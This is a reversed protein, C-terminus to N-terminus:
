KVEESLPKPSAKLIPEFVREYRSLKKAMEPNNGPQSSVIIKQINNGRDSQLQILEKRLREIEALTNKKNAGFPEMKGERILPVNWAGFSITTNGAFMSQHTNYHKDKRSRNYEAVVDKFHSRKFYYPVYSGALSDGNKELYANMARITERYETVKEKKIPDITGIAHPDFMTRIIEGFKQEYGITMLETPLMWADVNQKRQFAQEKPALDVINMCQGMLTRMANACTVQSERSRDVVRPLSPDYSMKQSEIFGSLCNPLGISRVSSAFIPEIDIEDIKGALVKQNLKGVRAYEAIRDIHKRFLDKDDPIFLVQGPKILINTGHKGKRVLSKDLFANLDLLEETHIGFHDSISAITDGKRIRYTTVNKEIEERLRKM